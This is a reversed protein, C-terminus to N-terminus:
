QDRLARTPEIRAARRAPLYAALGTVLLMAVLVRAYEILDRGAAAGNGGPFAARMAQDAGITLLLGLGLGILTVRFGQSMVLKLVRGRDAGVAMRLGIERTRQSVNSAVLGYIGAFALTVSMVGMAAVASIFVMFSRVASDQYLSEMTRVAAVALDPDLERVAARLPEVLALPDGRSRTVLSMQSQPAQAYALYMFGLPPDTITFYRGTPVVGVVEIWSGEAGNARFRRGVPSEGPWFREALAQNVVAVRPAQATDAATFTRGDTVPVEMLAFFHSDVHSTLVAESETGAPFEFGEPSIPTQGVPLGSMPIFSALSVTEVGAVGRAREALQEYFQQAQNPGYQALETNFSMTLVGETRVGPGVAAIELFGQYIFATVSIFVVSLAVQVTVLAGRGWGRRASIGSGATRLVDTLNGRSARMAPTLGFLFVSAVAVALNVLLVRQDLEFMLEISLEDEIPIQRWLLMGLYGVAAGAVAGGSALLASETLLQRVIRARGAGITLRVAIESARAPARSTLLGAVNVCAVVLVVAGLVVLMGLAPILSEYELLRNELETRLRMEFGRNTAPHDAALRAGVAGVEARAQEPTVGDLLRGKLELVRRDRQELPSRQEAGVLAPWMMMPVYLDPRVFLDLGPFSEPAVGIVTFDVGNIRVRRGVVASDGGLVRQWFRHSLVAVADQGPVVDEAPGFARGLAPQVGMVGFFNGSVITATRIEPMADSSAAFQVGADEFAVLGGAFSSTADRLAVYDPYSVRLLDTGGTAVNISGVTVVENASPVPLPRLLLGDAFSFTATNAGIGIALSLVAILTFGPSRALLRAGTRLDQLFGTPM